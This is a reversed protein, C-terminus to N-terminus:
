SSTAKMHRGGSGVWVSFAEITQSGNGVYDKINKGHLKVAVPTPDDAAFAATPLLSCVMLLCLLLSLIRKKM